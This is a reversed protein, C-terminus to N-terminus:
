RRTLVLNRNRFIKFKFRVKNSSVNRLYSNKAVFLDFSNNSFLRWSKKKWSGSFHHVAYAKEDVDTCFYYYPLIVSNKKLELQENKNYPPEIGFRDEFYKSILVTNPTMDFSGDEKVFHKNSYIDLLDGIIREGKQAGMLASIPFCELSKERYEFCSFFDLYLFEDVAM